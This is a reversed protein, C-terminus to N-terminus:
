RIKIDYEKNRIVIAIWLDDASSAESPVELILKDKLNIPTYNTAKGYKVEEGDSYKVKMFHDAFGGISNSTYIFPTNQDLQYNYDLMM